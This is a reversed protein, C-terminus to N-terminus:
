RPPGRNRWRGRQAVLTGFRALDRGTFAFHYAGHRSVPETIVRGDGARFAMGTPAAIWAAVGEAVSLGSLREFVAGLVNFDWNNYFFREGPAFAGRLPRDRQMEVTESAAPLFVGSRAQLLHRVTASRETATLPTIDDIDLEALTADLDFGVM